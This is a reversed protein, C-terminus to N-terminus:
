DLAIRYRLERIPAGWVHDDKVEGDIQWGFREYFASSDHAERRSVGFGSTSTSHRRQRAM